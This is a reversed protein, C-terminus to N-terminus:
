KILTSETVITYGMRKGLQIMKSLTKIEKVGSYYPHDYIIAFKNRKQLKKEFDTLIEKDTYKKARCWELYGVGGPEGGISVPINPLPGKKTIVQVPKDTHIDSVYGFGLHKLVSYIKDNGKWHPAAFGVMKYSPVIANMQTIGWEINKKIVKKGWGLAQQNWLEHNKGGHLGVEHGEMVARQIVQKGMQGIVPNIIAAVLYDVFGLKTLASLNTHEPESTKQKKFKQLFFSQLHISQGFNVFFTFSVNHKKALNLLNPMGDRVCKHTDVDFRFVLYKM